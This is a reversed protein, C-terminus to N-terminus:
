EEVNISKLSLVKCKITIEIKDDSSIVSYTNDAYSKYIQIKGSFTSADEFKELVNDSTHGDRKTMFNSFEGSFADDDKTKFNFSIKTNAYDEGCSLIFSRLYRDNNIKKFYCKGNTSIVKGDKFMANLIKIGEDKKKKSKVSKGEMDLTHAEKLIAAVKNIKEFDVPTKEAGSLLLPSICVAAAVFLTTIIKKM